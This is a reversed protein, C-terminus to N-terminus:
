ESSGSKVSRRHVPKNALISIQALEPSTAPVHFTPGFRAEPFDISSTRSTTQSPMVGPNCPHCSQSSTPPARHDPFTRGHTAARELVLM